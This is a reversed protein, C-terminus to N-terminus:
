FFLKEEKEFSTVMTYGAIVLMLEWTVLSTTLIFQPREINSFIMPLYPFLFLPLSVFLFRNLNFLWRHHNKFRKIMIPIALYFGVAIYLLSVILVSRFLQYDGRQEFQLEQNTIGWLLLLLGILYLLYVLSEKLSFKM